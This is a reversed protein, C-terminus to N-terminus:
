KSNAAKRGTSYLNVLLLCMLLVFLLPGASDRLEEGAFAAWLAAVVFAALTGIAIQGDEVLLGYINEWTAKLFDM